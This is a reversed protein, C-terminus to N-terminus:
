TWNDLGSSPVTPKRWLFHWCSMLAVM